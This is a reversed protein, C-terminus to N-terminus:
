SHISKYKEIFNSIKTKASDEIENFFIAMNYTESVDPQSPNKDVRVVVGYCEVDEVKNGKKDCVLPLNIRLRTMFSIHKDVLCSAGSSSLNITEAVVTSNNTNIEFRIRKNIRSHSRNEVSKDKM